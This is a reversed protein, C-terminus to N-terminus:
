KVEVLRDIGRDAGGLARALAVKALNHSYLALILSDNASAVSEQAQVVEINDNVGAAFRDRAQTLTENALQLNSQAVAVQDAATRIDLFASRVQYAIQGGLDALEDRRQKLAAQAQIEDAHIREGDFVNVKAEATFTFTGHSSNLATGVIGYDGAISGTPYREARAASVAEEAARVQAQYAQYDPRRGLATKVAEDETISNLPSFPLSEAVDFQQETTFGIVRGLSLKDQATQNQQALLRQQQQKLEVQARLVDIGAATGATRQDDARQYLANATEVQSQIANVRSSDAIIRLYASGVAQVVM